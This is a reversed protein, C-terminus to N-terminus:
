TGTLTDYKTSCSGCQSRNLSMRLVSLNTMNAQRTKARQRAAMMTDFGRATRRSPPWPPVPRQERRPDDKPSALATHGTLIIVSNHTDPPLTKKEFDETAVRSGDLKRATQQLGRGTPKFHGM